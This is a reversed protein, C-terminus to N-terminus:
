LKSINLNSNELENVSIEVTASSGEGTGYKIEKEVVRYTLRTTTNEEDKKIRRPLDEFYFEKNWVTEDTVSTMGSEPLTRTFKYEGNFIKTFKEGLASEFYEKAPTWKESTITGNANREAVQLEFTVQLQYGLYDETIPEGEDDRWVKAYPKDPVQLTNTLDRMTIKTADENTETKKSVVKGGQPEVRYEQNDSDEQM